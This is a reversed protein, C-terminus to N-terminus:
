DEVRTNEYREAQESLYFSSRVNKAVGDYKDATDRVQAAVKLAEAAEPLHANIATAAFNRQVDESMKMLYGPTAVILGGLEVDGKIQKNIEVLGKVPDAYQETLWALKLQHIVVKTPDLALKENIRTWASNEINDAEARLTDRAKLLKPVLTDAERKGRHHVDPVTRTEDKALRVIVNVSAAVDEHAQGIARRVNDNTFSDASGMSAMRGSKVQMLEIFRVAKDSRNIM